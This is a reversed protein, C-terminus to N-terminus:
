FFLLLSNRTETDVANSFFNNPVIYSGFSLCHRISHLTAIILIEGLFINKEDPEIYQKQKSEGRRLNRGAGAKCLTIYFM